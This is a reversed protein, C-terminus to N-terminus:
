HSNKMLLSINNISDTLFRIASYYNNADNSNLINTSVHFCLVEAKLFKNLYYAIATKNNNGYNEHTGIKFKNINGNKITIDLWSELVLLKSFTSYERSIGHQGKSGGNLIYIDENYSSSSALFYMALTNPKIITKLDKKFKEAIPSEDVDGTSYSERERLQLRRESRLSGASYVDCSIYNAGLAEALLSTFHGMFAQDGSHTSIITVNSNRNYITGYDTNQDFYEVVVNEKQEHIYNKVRFSHGNNISSLLNSENIYLRYHIDNMTLYKRPGKINYKEKARIHQFLNDHMFADKLRQLIIKEEKEKTRYSMEDIIGATIIGAPVAFIAIILLGLITALIKGIISLPKFEGYGGIDGIIKSVSWILSDIVSKFKDPQYRNEAIYLLSSITIISIILIEFSYIIEKVKNKIASIILGTSDVNVFSYICFTFILISILINLLRNESFYKFKSKM